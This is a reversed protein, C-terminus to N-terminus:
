GPVLDSATNSLIYAGVLILIFPTIYRGYRDLVDSLARHKLSYYAVWAFVGTIAMFTLAILYDAADKSDALFISFTVISDAGNSLQTMLVTIFITKRSSGSVFSATEGAQTTQFLQVLAIIGIIIPIVGLMGLYAVPIFGGGKGIVFCIAGILLMGAFYGTTVMRPHEQYRSYLAVLLVLNDLNTGIFAGATVAIIISMEIMRRNYISAINKPLM